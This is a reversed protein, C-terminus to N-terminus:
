KEWRYRTCQVVPTTQSVAQFHKAFCSHMVHGYPMIELKKSGWDRQAKCTDDASVTPMVSFM